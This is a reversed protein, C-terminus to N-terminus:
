IKYSEEVPFLSFNVGIVAKIERLENLLAKLREVDGVVSIIELCIKESLHVHISAKIIDIFEHQIHTVKRVTEGREHDYIFTVSGSVIGKGLMWRYTSLYSLIANSIVKSRNHAGIIKMMNDLDELVEEPLTISIRKVKGLILM